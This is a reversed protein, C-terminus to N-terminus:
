REWPLIVGGETSRPIVFIGGFVPDMGTIRGSGFLWYPLPVGAINDQSSNDRTLPLGTVRSSIRDLRAFSVATKAVRSSVAAIPTSSKV